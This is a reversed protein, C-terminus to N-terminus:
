DGAIRFAHPGGGSKIFERRADAPLDDFSVDSQWNLMKPIDKELYALAVRQTVQTSTARTLETDLRLLHITLTTGAKGSQLWGLIDEKASQTPAILNQRCLVSFTDNALEYIYSNDRTPFVRSM